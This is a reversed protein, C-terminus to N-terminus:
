CPELRCDSAQGGVQDHFAGKAALHGSIRCAVRGAVLGEGIELQYTM